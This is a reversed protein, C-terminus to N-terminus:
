VGSFVFTVFVRGSPVTTTWSNMDLWIKSSPNYKTFLISALVTFNAFLWDSMFLSLKTFTLVGSPTSLTVMVDFSISFYSNLPLNISDCFSNLSIEVGTESPCTWLVTGPYM